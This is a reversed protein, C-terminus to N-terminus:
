DAPVRRGLRKEEGPRFWHGQIVMPNQEAFSSQFGIRLSLRLKRPEIPPVLKGDIGGGGYEIDNAKKDFLNLVDLSVQLKPNFRYDNKQKAEPATFPSANREELLISRILVLV